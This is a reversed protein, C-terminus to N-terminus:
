SKYAGTVTPIAIDETGEDGFASGNPRTRDTIVKDILIFLFCGLVAAILGLTLNRNLNSSTVRQSGSAYSAVDAVGGTDALTNVLAGEAAKIATDYVLFMDNSSSSSRTAALADRQRQLSTIQGQLQQVADAKKKAQQAVVDKVLQDCVANAYRVPQQQDKGKVLVPFPNGGTGVGTSGVLDSPLKTSKAVNGLVNSALAQVIERHGLADNYAFVDSGTRAQSPPLGVTISCAAQYQVKTWGGLGVAGGLAVIVILTCGIVLRRLM